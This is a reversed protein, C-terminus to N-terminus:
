KIRVFYSNTGIYPYNLDMKDGNIRAEGIKTEVTFGPEHSVKLEFRNTDVATYVGMGWPLSVIMKGDVPSSIQFVDNTGFEIIHNGNQQHWKGIIASSPAELESSM